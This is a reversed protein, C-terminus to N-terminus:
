RQRSRGERLRREAFDNALRWLRRYSEHRRRAVGNGIAARVACGPEADHRCDQFRCQPALAAIERFGFAVERPAPLPPSYDRVGPSDVLDGGTPLAYLSAATTTHRGEDTSSSVEGVAAKLGPVLANTLSSKGVGSQGVLVSVEGACQRSLAALAADDGRQTQLLPYGLRAYGALEQDVDSDPTVLDRKNCIVAARLGAFEAMALYRDCVFWDPAPSPAVVVLLQTLNAAILEADGRASTRELRSRRPHVAVVLGQTPDSGDATWDVEDGCVAELKRGFLRCRHRMGHADAVVVQRGHSSVVRGPHPTDTM